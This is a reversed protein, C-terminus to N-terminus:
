ASAPAKSLRAYRPGDARRSTFLLVLVSIRPLDNAYSRRGTRIRSLSPSTSPHSLGHYIGSRGIATELGRISTQSPKLSHHLSTRLFGPSSPSVLLRIASTFEALFSIPLLCIATLVM